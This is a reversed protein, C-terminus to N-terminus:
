KEKGGAEQASQCHVIILCPFFLPPFPFFTLTSYINKRYILYRRLIAKWLGEEGRMLGQSLGAPAEKKICYRNAAYEM